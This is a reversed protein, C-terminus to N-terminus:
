IINLGKFEVKTYSFQPKCPYVNNKKNRNLFFSQPYENSGGRRPPGLSYGYDINQDSIHFIDSINIQFNENKTTFKKWYIQIPKKEYHPLFMIVSCLGGIASLPLAFAGLCVACLGLGFFLLALKERGWYSSWSVSCLLLGVFLVVCSFVFGCRTAM